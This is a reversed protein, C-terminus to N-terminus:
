ENGLKRIMWAEELFEKVNDMLQGPVGEEFGLFFKLGRDVRGTIARFREIGLINICKEMFQDRPQDYKPCEAMFHFVSENVDLNCKDCKKSGTDNWRYTRRNVELSLTRAKFLLASGLSGDYFQEKKPVIKSQYYEMTPKGIMGRKWADCGIKSVRHAIVSKWKDDTFNVGRGEEDVTRWEEIEEDLGVVWVRKLECKNVNRICKKMWKSNKGLKKYVKKAWRNNDMQELRIKYKMQGKMLREEFTSWGMDGRIAEQGVYRNAGLGLRGVRNQVTEMQSLESKNWPVVNMAYMINPVAVTKWIGRTVEYRNSRFKVAAGLRGYWQYAKLIKDSKAKQMGKNDIMIGLYKYDKVQSIKIGGLVWEDSNGSSEDIVIVGSKAASFSMNFDVAYKNVVNLLEQLDERSDCILIIDDTYLLISIRDEGVNIGLNRNKM